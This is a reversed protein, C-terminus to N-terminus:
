AVIHQNRIAVIPGDVFQRKGHISDRRSFKGSSTRASRRYIILSFAPPKSNPADAPENPSVVIDLALCKKEIENGISVDTIWAIPGSFSDRVHRGCVSCYTRPRFRVVVVVLITEMVTPRDPVFKKKIEGKRM